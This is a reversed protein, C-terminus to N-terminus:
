GGEDGRSIPKVQCVKFIRTSIGSNHVILPRNEKNMWM